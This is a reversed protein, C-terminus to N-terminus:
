IFCDSFLSDMDKKKCTSSYCVDAVSEYYLANISWYVNSAGVSESVIIEISDPNMGQLFFLIPLLSEDNSKREAELSVLDGDIVKKLFLEDCEKSDIKDLNIDNAIVYVISDRSTKRALKIVNMFNIETFGFSSVCLGKMSKRPTFTNFVFSTGHTNKKNTRWDRNIIKIKEPSVNEEIFKKFKDYNKKFPDVRFSNGHVKVKLTEGTLGNTKTKRIIVKNIESVNFSYKKGRWNRVNVMKDKVTVEFLCIYMIVFTCPLYVMLPIFIHAATEKYNIIELAASFIMIFGYLRITGKKWDSFDNNVVFNHKNKM